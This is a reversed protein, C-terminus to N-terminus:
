IVTIVIDHENALRLCTEKDIILSRGAEIALAAAKSEVLTKITSPGVVPIDFRMDQSHKSMKIIVTGAGALEAGRKIVRDTGEMAELAVVAKDKIVVSQGIELDALAKAIGRGFAIDQEQNKSPAAKTLLGKQPLLNELFTFSNILKIGANELVQATAKLLSDGRRDKINKLLNQSLEDLNLNKFILEQRVQGAMVVQDINEKKFIEILKKLQGVQIWYIKDVLKNLEPSTEEQLAVAVVEAKRRKAEQAFIIPFKGNGAILGLREM